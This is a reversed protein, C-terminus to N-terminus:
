RMEPFLNAPPYYQLNHQKSSVFFDSNLVVTKYKRTKTCTCFMLGIVKCKSIWESSKSIITDKGIFKHKQYSLINIEKLIFVFSFIYVM